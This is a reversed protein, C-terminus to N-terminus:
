WSVSQISTYDAEHEKIIDISKGLKAAKLIGYSPISSYAISLKERLKRRCHGESIIRTRM